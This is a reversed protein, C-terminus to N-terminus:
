GNIREIDEGQWDCVTGKVVAGCTVSKGNAM